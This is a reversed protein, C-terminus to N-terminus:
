RGLISVAGRGGGAPYSSVCLYTGDPSIVVSFPKKKRGLHTTAVRQGTGTDITVIAHADFAAVYLFRGDPSVQVGFVESYGSVVFTNELQGTSANLALVDAGPIYVTQSDPSFALMTYGGTGFQGAGLQSAVITQSALDIKTLYETGNGVADVYASLGDPTIAITNTRIGVTLTKVINGSAVNIISVTGSSNAVYLWTGDPTVALGSGYSPGASITKTVTNTSTSIVDITAIGLGLVFVTSGDPTVAVSALGAGSGASPTITASVQNVSTDIVSVKGNGINTVYLYNGDPTFAMSQPFGGVQIVADLQLEAPASNIGAELLCATLVACAFPLDMARSSIKRLFAIM